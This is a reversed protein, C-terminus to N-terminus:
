KQLLSPVISGIGLGVLYTITYKIGGISGSITAAGLKNDPLEFGKKMFLLAPRFGNYGLIGGVGAGAAFSIIAMYAINTLDSNANSFGLFGSGVALAADGLTPIYSGIRSLYYSGLSRKQPPISVRYNTARWREESEVAKAMEQLVREQASPFSLDKPPSKSRLVKASDDSIRISTTRAVQKLLADLRDCDDYRKNTENGSPYQEVLNSYIQQVLAKNDVDLEVQTGRRIGGVSELGSYDYNDIM